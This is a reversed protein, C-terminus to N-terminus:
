VSLLSQQTFMDRFMDSVKVPEKEEEQLTRPIYRYEIKTDIKPCKMSGKLILFIGISIMVIIFLNSVIM